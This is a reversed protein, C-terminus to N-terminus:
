IKGIPELNTVDQEQTTVHCKGSGIKKGAKVRIPNGAKSYEVRSNALAM